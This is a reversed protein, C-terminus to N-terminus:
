CFYRYSLIRNRYKDSVRPFKQEWQCIVNAYIDYNYIRKGIYFDFRDKSFHSKFKLLSDDCNQSRGGGLHLKSFGKEIGFKIVADFLMDNPRLHLFESYSCEFHLHLFNNSYLCLASAIPTKDKFVVFQILPLNRFINNFFSDNFFLYPDADVRNMTDRYIRLFDTQYPFDKTYYQIELGSNQAHRINQKTCRKYNEYIVKYDETLDIYITQRNHLIELYDKSFNHNGLLPNFRTFEAVINNLKCFNYFCNHFSSRFREDDSSYVIGNYGYAGKIDFYNETLHYGFNNIRNFLFPYLALNKGQQFVFCKAKGYLNKEYSEYYEPTYFVDQMNSPLLSLFYHWEERDQLTLLKYSSEIVPHLSDKVSIDEAETTM